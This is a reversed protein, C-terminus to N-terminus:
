NALQYPSSSSGDGSTIMVNENLYLTPKVSITNTCDYGETSARGTDNIGWAIYSRTNNMNLLWLYIKNKYLWNNSTCTTDNYKILTSNCKDTGFEAAYGYDSMYLLAIKGRWITPRGSYVDEGREQQYLKNSFVNSSNYGGLYWTNKLSRIEQIM